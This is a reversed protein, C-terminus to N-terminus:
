RGSNNSKDDYKATQNKNYILPLYFQILTGAPNGDPTTLDTIKFHSQDPLKEWTQAIRAITITTGSHERSNYEGTERKLFVMKRNKIKAAAARGIGDDRISVLIRRGTQEISLWVNGAVNRPLLGHLVANEVFPQLLLPPILAQKLHEPLQEPLHFNLKGPFRMSEMETYLQLAELDKEVTVVEQVTNNFILRMLKSFKSLFSVSFATDHKLIYNQVTNLANYIFHPSMQDRLAKDRYIGLDTKLKVQKRISRLRYHLFLSICSIGLVIALLIFWWTLWFPPSITFTYTGAYMKGLQNPALAGYEFTYTGPPLSNYNVVPDKTYSWTGNGKASRLRYRYQLAAAYRYNLGIFSISINNENYKLQWATGTNLPKNNVTLKQILVPISDDFSLQRNRPFINIGKVTGLWLDQGIICIDNIENSSLGDQVSAWQISTKSPQLIHGIRYLGMNTGVWVVGDTDSRVVNCIMHKLGEAETIHRVVRLEKKDLVLIGSGGTGILWHDSDLEQIDTIKEKDASENLRLKRYKKQEYIYLGTLSGVLRGGGSLARICLIYPGPLPLGDKIIKGQSDVALYSYDTQLAYIANAWVREGDFLLKRCGIRIFEKERFVSEHGAYYVLNDPTNVFGFLPGNRLPREWDGNKDRKLTALSFDSQQILVKNKLQGIRAIKATSLGTRQDFASIFGPPLYYIGNELTCFWLGGERDELMGSISYRDLLHIGRKYNDDKRYLMLGKHQYGIWINEKRDVLMYLPPDPCAIIKQQEKGRLRYVNQTCLLWITNGKQCGFVSATPLTNDPTVELTYLVAKTQMSVVKLQKALDPGTKLWRGASSVYVISYDAHQPVSLSQDAMGKNNIRIIEYGRPTRRNLYLVGNEDTKIHSWLGSHMLKAIVNNYPYSRITDQKLTNLQSSYTFCWLSNKDRTLAFVVNGILSDRTTFTEFHRGDFRALGRDTGIYIYGRDDQEITYTESSPLGDETTYNRFVPLQAPVPKYVTLFIFAILILRLIVPSLRPM